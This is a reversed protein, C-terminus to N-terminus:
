YGGGYGTISQQGLLWRSEQRSQAEAIEDLNRNRWWYKHYALADILDNLGMPNSHYEGILDRQSEHFYIQGCAFDERLSEIRRDKADKGTDRPLDRLYISLNEDQAASLITQKVWNQQSFTEIGWRRPRYKRHFEFIKDYLDSPKNIKKAWAELVFKTNTKIRVGVVVVATRCAKKMSSAVTAPDVTGSIDLEKLRVTHVKGKQDTYIILNEDDDNKDLVYFKKWDPSFTTLGSKMPENQMETYYIISRDPDDLMDKIGERSLKEPWIPNGYEDECPIHKWRYELRKKKVKDYIDEPAYHTGILYIYSAHPKSRDPTITLEEVNSFWDWTNQSETPSFRDKQGIIDDLFIHDVHIGQAANGVGIVQITPDRAVSKHPMEIAENSWELPKGDPARWKTTITEPFVEHLLKNSLLQGKIFSLLTKAKPQTETVLLTRIENNRLWLWLPMAGTICTSKLFYRPMLIGKRKLDTRQCFDLVEKHFPQLPLRPHDKDDRIVEMIILEVFHYLSQLSLRRLYERKIRDM